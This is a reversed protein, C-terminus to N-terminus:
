WPGHLKPMASFFPCNIRVRFQLLLPNEPDQFNQNFKHERLNSLGGLHLRLKIEFSDSVNFLSNPTPRIFKLLSNKLVKYSVSKRIELSINNWEKITYLFFSNAFYETWYFNTVAQLKIPNMFQQFMIIFITQHSIWM